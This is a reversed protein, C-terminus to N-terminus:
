DLPFQGQKRGLLYTVHSRHLRRSQRDMVSRQATPGQHGREGQFRTRVPLRGLTEWSAAGPLLTSLSKFKVIALLSCDNSLNSGASILHLTIFFGAYDIMMLGFSTLRHPPVQSNACPEVSLTGPVYSQRAPKLWPFGVSGYALM